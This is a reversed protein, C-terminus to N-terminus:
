DDRILPDPTPRRGRETKIVSQQDSIGSGHVVAVGKVGAIEGIHELM